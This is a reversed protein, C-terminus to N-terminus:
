MYYLYRSEPLQDDPMEGLLRGVKESFVLTIPMDSCFSATNWNMKTLGSIEKCIQMRPTDGHHEVISIPIPTSGGWFHKQFPIYGKTYIHTRGDATTFVTGRIPPHTGIRFLRIFSKQITLFDHQSIGTLPQKFGALEDETFRSSKHIVIRSPSNGMQRKYTKLVESMLTEADTRSLRPSRDSDTEEISDGRLVLGEGTHSFVQAMSSKLSNSKSYYFSIGVYCTGPQTVSLRWPHGGAKYYIGTALNWAVTCPDEVGKNLLTKQKIFQTPISRKMAEIKIARYLNTYSKSIDSQPQTTRSIRDRKYAPMGSSDWGRHTLKQLTKPLSIIVVNPRPEREHINQLKEIALNVASELKNDFGKQKSVDDLENEKFIEISGSSVSITCRFSSSPSLGPFPPVFDPAKSSKIETKMREILDLALDATEKSGIIGLIISKPSPADQGPFGYPGYASLGVKQDVTQNGGNFVLRPEDLFRLSDIGNTM